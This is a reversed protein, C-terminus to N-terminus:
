CCSSTSGCGSCGAGAEIKLGSTLKFGMQMFDVMIPKAKEMFKKDVVYKFNDIDYVHDTDKPEDLAM